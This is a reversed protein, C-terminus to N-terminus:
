VNEERSKDGDKGNLNINMGFCIEDTLIRTLYQHGEDTTGCIRVQEIRSGTEFLERLERILSRLNNFKTLGGINRNTTYNIIGEAQSIIQYNGATRATM